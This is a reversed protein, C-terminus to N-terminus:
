GDRFEAEDLEESGEEGCAADGEEGVVGLM